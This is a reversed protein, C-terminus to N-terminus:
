RMPFFIKVLVLTFWPVCTIIFLGILFVLVYPAFSRFMKGVDIQAFNCAIFMGMGIPPLFIGIGLCAICLIGFHIQNIGLKDVFPLFIPVLILMAPVGELVAGLLIFCLNSLLLFILPSDSIKTIATGVINPVQNTSLIWSLASAVGVLLM